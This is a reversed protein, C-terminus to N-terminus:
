LLRIETYSIKYLKNKPWEYLNSNVFVKEEVSCLNVYFSNQETLM